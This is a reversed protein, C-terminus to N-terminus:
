SCISTLCHKSDNPTSYKTNCNTICFYLSWSIYLFTIKNTTRYPHSVQDSVNFSPHLSLTDSFLTNLLINPDLLSSIVRSHLFSCLSSSLSKYQEGFITRTIFPSSHSPRLMYRTHTLPSTYVPNQHSLRLSISWKPSGPTSPLTINLHIELFHSTPTHVPCLRRLISVPPSCKHIRYYVKPNGYFTPFKKASQFGILKELLVRSWATIQWEM